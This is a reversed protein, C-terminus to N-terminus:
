YKGTEPTQKSEPQKNQNLINSFYDALNQNEGENEKFKKDMDDLDLKFDVLTQNLLKQKEKDVAQLFAGVRGRLNQAEPSSGPLLLRDSYMGLDKLDPNNLLDERLQDIKGQIEKVKAESYNIEDQKPM